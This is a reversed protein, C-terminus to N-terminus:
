EDKLWQRRWWWWWQGFDKKLNWYWCDKMTRRGRNRHKSHMDSENRCYHLWFRAMWKNMTKNKKNLEVTDGVSTNETRHALILNIVLNCFWLEQSFTVHCRTQWWQLITSELSNFWYFDELLLDCQAQEVTTPTYKESQTQGSVQGRHKISTIHTAKENGLSLFHEAWWYRLIEVTGDGRWGM